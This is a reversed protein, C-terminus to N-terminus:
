KLSFLKTVRSLEVVGTLDKATRMNHMFVHNVVLDPINVCVAIIKGM